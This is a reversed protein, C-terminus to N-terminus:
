FFPELLNYYSCSGRLGDVIHGASSEPRPPLITQRIKANVVPHSESRLPLSALLLLFIFLM